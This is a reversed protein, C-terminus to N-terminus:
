IDKEEKKKFSRSLVFLAVGTGLLLIYPASRVIVGTPSIMQLVNEFEVTHAVDDAEDPDPTITATDSVDNYVVIKSTPTGADVTLTTLYTAGVADNTETVEVTTGCPIGIYKISSGSAITATGGLDSVAGANHQYDTANGNVTASLLIDNTVPENRFVIEMPFEHGMNYNDNTLIKSVTVNYTYYSDAKVENGDTDQGAVFGNIKVTDPTVDVDDYLCVFGYIEWEEATEGSIFDTDAAKVYVDLYRTHTTDKETVGSEAYTAGSGTLTETIVYRYVGPEGFVVGSFDIDLPKKNAEGTDSADLTDDTTWAITGTAGPNGNVQLGTLVGAKTDVQVAEDSEHDEPQDTISAVSGATVTYTYSITPANITSEDVNYATLEKLISVTEDSYVTPTDQNNPAFGGVEGDELDTALITAGISMVMTFSIILAAIKKITKKM